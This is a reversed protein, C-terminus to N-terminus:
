LKVTPGPIVLRLGVDPAGPTEIVM